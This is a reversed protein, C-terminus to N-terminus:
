YRIVGIMNKAPYGLKGDGHMCDESLYEEIHIGGVPFEM